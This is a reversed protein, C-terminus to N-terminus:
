SKGGKLLADVVSGAINIYIWKALRKRWEGDLEEPADDLQLVEMFAGGGIAGELGPELDTDISMSVHKLQFQGDICAIAHGIEHFAKVINPPFAVHKPAPATKAM